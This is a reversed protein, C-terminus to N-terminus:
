WDYHPTDNVFVKGFVLGLSQLEQTREIPISNTDLIAQIRSLDKLSGDMDQSITETSIQNGLFLMQAVYEIWEDDPACIIQEM